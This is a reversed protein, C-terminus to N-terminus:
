SGRNSGQASKLRTDPKQKAIEDVCGRERKRRLDINNSDLLHPTLSWNNTRRDRDLYLLSRKKLPSVPHLM